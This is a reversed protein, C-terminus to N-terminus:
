KLRGERIFQALAPRAVDQGMVWELDAFNYGKSGRLKKENGEDFGKAALALEEQSAGKQGPVIGSLKVRSEAVASQHVYGKVGSPARVLYWSGATEVLELRTGKQLSAVSASLFDPKAMLSSQMVQVVLAKGALLLAAAALFLIVRVSKKM